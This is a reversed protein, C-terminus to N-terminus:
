YSGGGDGGLAREADPLLERVKKLGRELVVPKPRKLIRDRFYRIRYQLDLMLNLDSEGILPELGEFRDQYTSAATAYAEGNKGEQYQKLALQLSRDVARLERSPSERTLLLKAHASGQIGKIVQNLEDKVFGATVVTEPPTAGTEYAGNLLYDIHKLAKARETPEVENKLDKVVM